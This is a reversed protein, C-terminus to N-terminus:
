QQCRALIGVANDRLIQQKIKDDLRAGLIKGLQQTLSYFYCDSGFVIREAGAGAVLYEVLGRRCASFCTDIFIRPASRATKIYLDPNQSGGHALIISLEPFREALRLISAFQREQGWTHFLVPLSRENAMEYAPLYAPDDYAFGNHDHLKLGTFGEGLGLEVESRVVAPSAPFLSIYGLIRGPCARMHALVERNGWEMNRGMCQMHSCVICEVRVRDLVELLGEATLDPIPYAYRGVHGHLDLVGFEPAEGARLRDILTKM